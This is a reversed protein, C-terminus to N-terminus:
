VFDARFYLTTPGFAIGVRQLITGPGNAILGATNSQYYTAGTTLGGIDRCIGQLTFEGFAGEAVEKSCFAQASKGASSANAKRAILVNSDEYFNVITGRTLEEEAIAYVKTIGGLRVQSVGASKWYIEEIPIAGTYLDLAQQLVRMANRLKLSDVFIEPYDKASFEPAGAIGLNTSFKQTGAV